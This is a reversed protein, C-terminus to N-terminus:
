TNQQPIKKGKRNKIKSIVTDCKVNLEKYEDITTDEVVEVVSQGDSELMEEIVASLQRRHRM